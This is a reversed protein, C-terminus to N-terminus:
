AGIFISNFLFLLRHTLKKSYVPKASCLTVSSKSPLFVNEKSDLNFSYKINLPHWTGLNGDVYPVSACSDSGLVGVSM